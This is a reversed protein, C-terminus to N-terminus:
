DKLIILKLLEMKFTEYDIEKIRYGENIEITRELSHKHIMVREHVISICSNVHVEDKDVCENDINSLLDQVEKVEKITKPVYVKADYDDLM